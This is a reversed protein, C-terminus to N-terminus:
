SPIQFKGGEKRIEANISERESDPLKGTAAIWNYTDWDEVPGFAKIARQRDEESMAEWQANTHNHNDNDLAPQSNPKQPLSVQRRNYVDAVNDVFHQVWIIKKQALDKDIADLDVLTTLIDNATDASVGTKALLFQWNQPSNFDYFHGESIGLLELLKFWFAYGDNKFKDQLIFLTRGSVCYHPFYDVTQKRPRAM